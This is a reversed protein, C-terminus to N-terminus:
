RVVRCKLEGQRRTRRNLRITAFIRAEVLRVPKRRNFCVASEVIELNGPACLESQAGEGLARRLTANVGVQVSVAIGALFALLYLLVPTTM